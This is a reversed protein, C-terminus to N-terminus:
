DVVEPCAGLLDAGVESCRLREAVATEVAGAIVVAVDDVTSLIARVIPM